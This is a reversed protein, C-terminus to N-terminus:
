VAGSLVPGLDHQDDNCAAAVGPRAPLRRQLKEAFRGLVDRGVIQHPFEKLPVRQLLRGEGTGGDLFVRTGEARSASCWSPCESATSRRRSRWASSAPPM